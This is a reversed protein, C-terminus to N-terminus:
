VRVVRGSQMAQMRAAEAREKYSSQNAIFPIRTAGTRVNLESRLVDNAETAQKFEELLDGYKERAMSMEMNLDAIVAELQAKTAM